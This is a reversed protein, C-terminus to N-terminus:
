KEFGCKDPLIDQLASNIATRIIVFEDPTCDETLCVMQCVRNRIGEAVETYNDITVLYPKGISKQPVFDGTCLQWYRSICQSLDSAMRFQNHSVMDLQEGEIEWIHSLTSKKLPVPMHYDHFGAFNNWYDLGRNRDLLEGYGEYYWKEWNKKQVVRKSFHKNILLVNNAKVYSAYNSIAGVDVPMIPSEIAQDCPIGEKFYYEAPIPLLPFCDDNFLIYNESLDQIRHYNLEIVNSNFTPLYEKPIYDSHKITRLKPNDLNIFEPLHGCTVLFIHNVWPMFREIARFVYHLNDWSEYRVNSNAKNNINYKKETELKVKLWSPDNGDVWPIIIDIKESM